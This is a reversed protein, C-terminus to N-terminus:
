WGPYTLNHWPLLFHCFRLPNISYMNLAWDCWTEKQGPHSQLCPNEIHHLTLISPRKLRMTGGHWFASGPGGIPPPPASPFSLQVTLCQCHFEEAFLHHMGHMENALSFWMNIRVNQPPNPHPCPLTIRRCPWFSLLVSTNTLLIIDAEM